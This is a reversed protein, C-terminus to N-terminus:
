LHLSKRYEKPSLHVRKKFANSFYYINDFGSKIAIEGIPLDTNKLLDRARGLRIDNVYEIPTKGVEQKFKRILWQKSIYFHQSLSDLTITHDFHDHLFAICESVTRSVPAKPSNKQLQNLFFLDNTYHVIQLANKETVAKKLLFITNEARFPDFFSIIGNALPFPFSDFQIYICTLPDIVRRHFPTNACFVFVDNKQATYQKDGIQCAFGGELVVLLTDKPHAGDKCQFKNRQIIECLCM